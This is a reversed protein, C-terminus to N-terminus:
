PSEGGTLANLQDRLAAAREYDEALVAAAMERRLEERRRADPDERSLPRRGVHRAERGRASLLPTLQDRFASYCQGCGVLRTKRVAGFLTGCAPCRLSDDPGPADEGGPAPIEDPAAGEEPVPENMGPMQQMMGFLSALFAGVNQDAMRARMEAACIPCLHRVQTQQGAVVTINVRAERQKCQECIM